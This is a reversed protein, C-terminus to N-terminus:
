RRSRRRSHLVAGQDLLQQPQCPDSSGSIEIKPEPWLSSGWPSLGCLISSMVLVPGVCGTHPPLPPCPSHLRRKGPPQPRWWMGEEQAEGDWPGESKRGGPHGLPAPNQRNRDGGGGLFDGSKVRANSARLVNRGGVEGDEHRM